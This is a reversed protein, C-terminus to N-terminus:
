ELIASEAMMLLRTFSVKGLTVIKHGGLRGELVSLPGESFQRVSPLDGSVKADDTKGKFGTGQVTQTPSSADVVKPLPGFDLFFISEIGDTFTLKLVEKQTSPDIVTSAEVFVFAQDPMFKPIVPTFDLGDLSDIVVEGNTPQHFTVGSLDPNAVYTEYEMKTYLVGASDYEMVRLALGTATDLAVEYSAMGNKRAVRVQHCVRGAITVVEGYSELTYNKFFAELDRVLFDRYRWNFGTRLDQISKFADQTPLNGHVMELPVIEFNGAGDTFVEERYVEPQVTGGLTYYSEIRRVGSHAVLSPANQIQHAITAVEAETPLTSGTCAPVLALLGALLLRKM